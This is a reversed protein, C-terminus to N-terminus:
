HMLDGLCSGGSLPVEGPVGAVMLAEKPFVGAHGAPAEWRGQM